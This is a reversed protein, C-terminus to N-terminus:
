KAVSLTVTVDGNGLFSKLEDATAGEIRGLRTYSWSNGGYFIVLQNGQYLVLDGATTTIRENNTPLNKGLSGVKEFGGYDSMSITLSEDTLLAILAAASSNDALTAALSKGGVTVKLKPSKATISTELELSREGYMPLQNAPLSDAFATGFALSAVMFITLWGRM